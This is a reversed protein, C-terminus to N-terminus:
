NKEENREGGVPIFNNSSEPNVAIKSLIEAAAQSLRQKLDSVLKINFYHVKFVSGSVRGSLVDIETEKLYKVMFSAYLERVDGFRQPVHRRALNKQISYSRPIQKRTGIQELMELPVYSIYAKKSTRIFLDKFRFHELFGTNVNYYKEFLNKERTFQIILNYAHFAETFRLGTVTVFDMFLANEPRCDKAQKIWNWIEEPDNTKNLRDIILDDASRAVWTLGYSSVLKKFEDHCGLFKSLLSLSKLCHPIRGQPLQKVKSLDQSLLCDGFQMAYNLINTGYHGRYKRAMIASQFAQWDVKFCPGNPSPSTQLAAKHPNM